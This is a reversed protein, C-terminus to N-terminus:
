NDFSEFVNTERIMSKPIKYKDILAHSSSAGFETAFSTAEFASDRSVYFLNQAKGRAITRAVTDTHYLERLANNRATHLPPACRRQLSM